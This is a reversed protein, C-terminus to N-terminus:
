AVYTVIEYKGNSFTCWSLHLAATAPVWSGDDLKIGLDFHAVQNRAGESGCEAAGM